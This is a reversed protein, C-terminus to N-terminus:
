EVVSWVIEIATKQLVSCYSFAGVGFWCRYNPLLGVVVKRLIKLIFFCIWLCGGIEIATKQL